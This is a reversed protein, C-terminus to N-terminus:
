KKPGGGNGDTSAPLDLPAGANLQSLVESTLDNDGSTFVVVPTANVTEATTDFVLAYGAAKARANVVTTIENLLNDRMRRKQEDLTVRAQREFQDLTAKHEQINKLKAEAAQKRKEREQASLAQNNADALSKQYEEGLKQYGERLDKAEKELDAAREKLAADAQKTKWYGDFLKRLNVTAIRTQAWGSGTLVSALLAALIMRRFLDKM